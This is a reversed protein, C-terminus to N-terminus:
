DRLIGHRAADALGKEVESNDDGSWSSFRRGRLREVEDATAFQVSAGNKFEIRRKARYVMVDENPGRLMDVAREFARNSNELKHSLYLGNKGSSVAAAILTQIGLEMKGTM